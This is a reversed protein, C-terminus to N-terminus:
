GRQLVEQWIQLNDPLPVNQPVHSGQAQYGNEDARYSFTILEGEPSTWSVEGDKSNGNEGGGLGSEQRFSGDDSSYQFNYNGEEDPFSGQLTSGDGEIDFQRGQRFAGQSQAPLSRPENIFQIPDAVSPLLIDVQPPPGFESQSALLRGQRQRNRLRRNGGRTRQCLCGDIILSLLLIALAWKMKITSFFQLVFLYHCSFQSQLFHINV